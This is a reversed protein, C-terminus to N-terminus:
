PFSSHSPHVSGHFFSISPTPALISHFSLTTGLLPPNPYFAFAVDMAIVFVVAEKFAFVLADSVHITEEMLPAFYKM